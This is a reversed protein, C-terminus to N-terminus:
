CKMKTPKNTLNKDTSWTVNCHVLQCLFDMLCSELYLTSMVPLSKTFDCYTTYLSYSYYSDSFAM